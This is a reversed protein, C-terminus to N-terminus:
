GSRPSSGLRKRLESMQEPKLRRWSREHKVVKARVGEGSVYVRRVGRLNQGGAEIRVTTGRQGGAACLYGIYPRRVNPAGQASGLCAALGVAILLRRITRTTM